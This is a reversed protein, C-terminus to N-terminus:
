HWLVRAGIETETVVSEMTWLALQCQHEWALCIRYIKEGKAQRLVIRLGGCLVNVRVSYVM